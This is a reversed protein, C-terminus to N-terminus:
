KEKGNKKNKSNSIIPAAIEGIEEGVKVEQELKDILRPM